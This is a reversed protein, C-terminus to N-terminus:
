DQLSDLYGRWGGYCTVDKATEIAFHECIFGKEKSGDQLELTGIGLPQPVLKIFSGFHEAPMEWVEVEIATGNHEDRMLGPRQPPGGALAYLRYHPATVTRKLFRAKRDTLQYNLALGQMHAGCV